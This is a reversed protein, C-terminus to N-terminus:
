CKGSLIERKKLSSSCGRSCNMANVNPMCNGTNSDYTSANVRQVHELVAEAQVKTKSVVGMGLEEHGRMRKTGGTGDDESDNLTRRRKGQVVQTRSADLHNLEEFSASSLALVLPLIQIMKSESGKDSMDEKEKGSHSMSPSERASGNDEGSLTDRKCFYDPHDKKGLWASESEFAHLIVDERQVNKM